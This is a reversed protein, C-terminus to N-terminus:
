LKHEKAIRQKTNEEKYIQEKSKLSITLDNSTLQLSILDKKM